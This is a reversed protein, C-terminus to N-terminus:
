GQEPVPTPEPAPAPEPEPAPETEPAPAPEAAPAPPPAPAPTSEIAPAPAAAPEVAPVPVPAPEGAPVPVPAGSEYRVFVNTCALLGNGAAEERALRESWAAAVKQHREATAQREAEPLTAFRADYRALAVQNKALWEGRVREIDAAMDPHTRLCEVGAQALLQRELLPSFDDAAQAMGAAALLLAAALGHTRM